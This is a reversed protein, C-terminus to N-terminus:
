EGDTAGKKEGTWPEDAQTWALVGYILWDSKPLIWEGVGDCIRYPIIMTERWSGAESGVQVTVKYRASQTPLGEACPIWSDSPAITQACMAAIRVPDNSVTGEILADADIPRM